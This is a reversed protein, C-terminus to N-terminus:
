DRYGREQLLRIVREDEHEVLKLPLLLRKTNKILFEVPVKYCITGNYTRGTARNRNETERRTRVTDFTNDQLIRQLEKTETVYWCSNGKHHLRIAFMEAECKLFSGKAERRVEGTNINTDLLKVELLICKFKKSADDIDKISFTTGTLKNTADIDAYQAKLDTDLTCNFHKAFLQETKKWKNNFSNSM